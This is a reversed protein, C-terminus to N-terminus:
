RCRTVEAADRRKERQRGGREQKTEIKERERESDQRMGRRGAQVQLELTLVEGRVMNM